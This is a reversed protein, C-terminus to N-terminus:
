IQDRVKRHEMDQIKIVSGKWLYLTPTATHQIRSYPLDKFVQYGRYDLLRQFGISSLIELVRFGNSLGPGTGHRGQKVSGQACKSKLVSWWLGGYNTISAQNNTSSWSWFEGWKRNSLEGDVSWSHTRPKYSAQIVQVNSDADLNAIGDNIRSAELTNSMSSSPDEM